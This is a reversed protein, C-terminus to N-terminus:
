RRTKRKGRKKTKRKKKPSKKKTRKKRRRRKGGNHESHSDKLAELVLDMENQRENKPLSKIYADIDGNFENQVIDIPSYIGELSASKGFEIGRKKLEKKIRKDNNQTGFIEELTKNDLESLSLPRPNRKKKNPSKKKTKKKPKKARSGGKRKGGMYWWPQTPTSGVPEKSEEGYNGYSPPVAEAPYSEESDWITMLNEDNEAYRPKYFGLIVGTGKEIKPKLFFTGNSKLEDPQGNQIVKPYFKNDKFEGKITAKRGQWKILITSDKTYKVNKYVENGQNDFEYIRITTM